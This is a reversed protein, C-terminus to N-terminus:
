FDRSVKGARVMGVAIGDRRQECEQRLVPVKVLCRFLRLVVVKAKEPM